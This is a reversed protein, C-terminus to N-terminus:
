DMRNYWIKTVLCKQLNTYILALSPVLFATLMSLGFGCM